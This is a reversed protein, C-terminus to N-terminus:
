QREYVIVNHIKQGKADTGTQTLTRTKGDNSVVVRGTGVVKGNRKTTAEVTNDDIRKYALTDFDPNGKVPVDKGDYKAQFEFHIPKGDAPVTDSTFKVGDAGVADIKLTQSKPAPGPEYKSKAPNMKWSGVNSDAAIALIGLFLIAVATCVTARVFSRPM